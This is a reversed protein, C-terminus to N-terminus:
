VLTRLYSLMITYKCVPHAAEQMNCRPANAIKRCYSKQLFSGFLYQLGQKNVEETINKITLESKFAYSVAYLLSPM